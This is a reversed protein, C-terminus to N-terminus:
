AGRLDYKTMFFNIGGYMAVENYKFTGNTFDVFFIKILKRGRMLTLLLIAGTVTLYYYRKDWLFM